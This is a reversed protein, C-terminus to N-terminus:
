SRRRRSASLSRREDVYHKFADGKKYEAFEADFKEKMRASQEGYEGKKAESLANWEESIKKGIDGMGGGAEAVEKQVRERIDGAFIMYGSKPRKPADKNLKKVLKKRMRGDIWDQRIEYFDKYHQTKTYEAWKPRWIEMEAEYEKQMREKDAEPTKDWEEKLALAMAKLDTVLEPRQEKLRARAEGTVRQFANKPKPPAQDDKPKGRKKKEPEPAGGNATAADPAGAGDAVAADATAMTPATSMDTADCETDM